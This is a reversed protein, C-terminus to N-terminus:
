KKTPSFRHASRLTALLPLACWAASLGWPAPAPQANTTAVIGGAEVVAGVGLEELRALDRTNWAETAALYRPAPQDVNIGDVTLEGSDLKNAAKSYPDLAIGGDLPVMASRDAFFTLRGDLDEVLQRDIGTERPLLM